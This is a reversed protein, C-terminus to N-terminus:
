LTVTLLTFLAPEPNLPSESPKVDEGADSSNVVVAVPLHVFQNNQIITVM